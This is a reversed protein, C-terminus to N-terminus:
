EPLFIAINPRIWGGSLDPLGLNIILFGLSILIKSYNLKILKTEEKSKLYKSVKAETKLVSTKNFYISNFYLLNM